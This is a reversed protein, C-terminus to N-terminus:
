RLGAVLCRCVQSPDASCQWRLLYMSKVAGQWRRLAGKRVGALCVAQGLACRAGHPAGPRCCQHPAPGPLRRAHRPDPRLQVGQRRQLLPRPPWSLPGTLTQSCCTQFARDAPSCLGTCNRHVRNTPLPLLHPCCFSDHAGSSTLTARSACSASWATARAMVRRGSAWGQLLPPLPLAPPQHRRLVGRAAPCGRCRCPANCASPGKLLRAGPSGALRPWGTHIPSRAPAGAPDAGDLLHLLPVRSHAAEAERGRLATAVAIGGTPPHFHLRSIMNEGSVDTHWAPPTHARLTDVLGACPCSQTAAQMCGRQWCAARACACRSTCGLVCWACGGRPVGVCGGAGGQRGHEAACGVGYKAGGGHAAGAGGQRGGAAGLGPGARQRQGHAGGCVAPRRGASGRRLHLLWPRLEAHGAPAAGAQVAVALCPAAM